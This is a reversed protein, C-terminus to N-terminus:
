RTEIDVNILGSKELEIRYGLLLASKRVKMEQVFDYKSGFYRVKVTARTRGNGARLVEVQSIGISVQQMWNTFKKLDASSGRVNLDLQVEQFDYLKIEKSITSAIDSFHHKFKEFIRRAGNKSKLLNMGAFSDNQTLKERDNTFKLLSQFSIETSKLAVDFIENSKEVSQLKITLNSIYKKSDNNQFDVHLGNDEFFEKILESFQTIMRSRTTKADGEVTLLVTYVRDESLKEIEKGFFRFFEGGDFYYDVGLELTKQETLKSFLVEHRSSRSMYKSFLSKNAHGLGLSEMTVFVYPKTLENAIDIKAASIIKQETKSIASRQGDFDGSYYKSFRYEKALSDEATFLFVAMLIAAIGYSMKSYLSPPKPLRSAIDITM